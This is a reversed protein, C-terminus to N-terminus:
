NSNIGDTSADIKDIIQTLNMNFAANSFWSHFQSSTSLQNLPLPQTGNLLTGTVYTHDALYNQGYVGVSGSVFNPNAAFYNVIDLTFAGTINNYSTFKYYKTDGNGTITGIDNNGFPEIGNLTTDVQLSVTSPTTLSAWTLDTKQDSFQLNEISTLVDIGDPSSNRLDRIIYNNLGINTLSYNSKLGSYVAVDTGNGGDINDNGGNGTITDNGNSGQIKNQSNDGLLIDNFLSGNINQINTLIDTGGWNDIAIGTLLNVNVGNISAGATDNGDDFYDVSNIGGGGNITDNGSGGYFRDDGGGGFIQDNGARAFVYGSNDSLTITDNFKTGHANAIGTLTDQGITSGSATGLKLNLNVGATASEYMVVDNGGNGVISHTGDGVSFWDDGLGGRLTDNGSNASLHVNGNTVTSADINTNGNWLNINVTNNQAGTFASNTITVNQTIQSGQPDINFNEIGKVNAGLTVATGNTHVTLNDWGAGGDINSGVLNGVEDIQDNGDGASITDMGGGGFITDDAATGILVDNGITGNITAM